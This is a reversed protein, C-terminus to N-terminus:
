LPASSTPTKLMRFSLAELWVAGALGSVFEPIAVNPAYHLTFELVWVAAAVLAVVLTFVGFRPQHLLWFVASLVLLSIPFFVFFAVSVLYHTPSFSENFVGIGILAICSLALIFAGVKGLVQERMVTFLGVTFVLFLLGSVVLGVNFVIGTIGPQVGLDSLANNAWSFQSWSAVASLICAFALIPGIIGCLAATKQIRNGV